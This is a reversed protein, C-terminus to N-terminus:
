VPELDESNGAFEAVAVYRTEHLALAGAGSLWLEPAVSVVKVRSFTAVSALIESL